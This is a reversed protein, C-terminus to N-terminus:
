SYKQQYGMEAMFGDASLGLNRLAAAATCGDIQRGRPTTDKSGLV